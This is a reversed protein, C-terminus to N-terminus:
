KRCIEKLKELDYLLRLLIQIIIEKIEKIIIMLIKIKVMKMM